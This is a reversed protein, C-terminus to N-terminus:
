LGKRFSEEPKQDGSFDGSLLLNGVQRFVPSSAGVNRFEDLVKQVTARRGEMGHTLETQSDSGEVM